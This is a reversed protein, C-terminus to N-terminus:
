LAAHQPVDSGMGMKAQWAPLTEKPTPSLESAKKMPTACAWPNDRLAEIQERLRQKITSDKMALVDPRGLFDGVMEILTAHTRPEQKAILDAASAIITDDVSDDSRVGEGHGKSSITLLLEGLLTFAIFGMRFPVSKKREKDAGNWAIMTSVAHCMTSVMYGYGAVALPKERMWEYVGQLGPSRPTDPDHVKEKVLTAFLGSTLTVGGLAMDMYGERHHDRLVKKEAVKLYNARDAHSITAGPFNVKIKELDHELRELAAGVKPLTKVKSKYAALGVCLGAVAYSLNMLEAPYRRFIDDAKKILGRNHDKLINDLSCSEPITIDQSKLHTALQRSLDKIQLDSPEKRSGLIGAISGGFYSLGGAMDLRSAEKLGYMFFSSDAVLMSLSSALLSRKKVKDQFTANETKDAQIECTGQVWKKQALAEILDKEKGFDRVELTPKGSITYPTCNWDKKECLAMFEKVTATDLDSGASMYARIGGAENKKFMVQSIIKSQNYRYVSM